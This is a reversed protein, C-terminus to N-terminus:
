SRKRTFLTAGVIVLAVVVAGVILLTSIPIQNNPTTTGTSTTAQVTLSTSNSSSPNNSDGSYSATITASGLVSPTYSVRCSGSSLLTCSSPRFKALADTSSFSVTGTPSSGTVTATCTTSSGITISSPSCSVTVGPAQLAPVNLSFAGSSASNKTDGSYSANITVPSTKSSPTYTVSCSGSSLTCTSSSFTGSGSSQWSVSGTPNEGTVTVTCTSPSGIAVSIPSCSVTTSSPSPAISSVYLSASTISGVDFNFVKTQSNYFASARESTGNSFSVELSNVSGAYYVELNGSFPKIFRMTAITRNSDFQTANLLYSFVRSNDETFGVQSANGVPQTFIKLTPVYLERTYLPSFNSLPDYFSVAFSFPFSTGKSYTHATNVLNLYGRTQNSTLSAFGNNSPLLVAIGVNTYNWSLESTSSSYQSPFGTGDLYNAFLDEQLSLSKISLGASRTVTIYGTLNMKDTNSKTSFTVSLQLGDTADNWVVQLKANTGDDSLVTATPTGFNSDISTLGNLNLYMKMPFANALSGNRGTFYFMADKLSIIPASVSTVLNTIYWNDDNLNPSRVNEAFAAYSSSSGLYSGVIASKWLPAQSGNLGNIFNYFTTWPVANLYVLFASYMKQPVNSSYGLAHPAAYNSTPDAPAVGDGEMEFRGQNLEYHTIAAEDPSTSNLGLLVFGVGEANSTSSSTGLWGWTPGNRQISSKIDGASTDFTSEPRTYALQGNPYNCGISTCIVTAGSNDPAIWTSDWSPSVYNAVDHSTYYDHTEITSNLSAIFYPENAFFTLSVTGSLITAGTISSVIEGSIEEQVYNSTVSNFSVSASTFHGIGGYPKGIDLEEALLGSQYVISKNSGDTIAAYTIEGNATNVGIEYYCNKIYQTTSTSIVSLPCNTSGSSSLINTQYGASAYVTGLLTSFLLIGVLIVLERRPSILVSGRLIV